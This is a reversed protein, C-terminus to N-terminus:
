IYFLVNNHKCIEIPFAVNQAAVINTCSSYQKLISRSDAIFM